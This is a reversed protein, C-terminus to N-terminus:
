PFMPTLFRTKENVHQCKAYSKALEARSPGARVIWFSDWEAMTTYAYGKAISTSADLIRTQDEPSRGSCRPLQLCGGLAIPDTSV